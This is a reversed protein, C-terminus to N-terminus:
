RHSHIPVTMIVSPRGFGLASSARTIAASPAGCAAPELDEEAISGSHAFRVGHEFGSLALALGAHINNDAIDLRVAPHLRLGQELSQFNQRRVFNMIMPNRQPFEIEVGSQLAM